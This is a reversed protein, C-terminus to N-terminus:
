LVLGEGKKKTALCQQYEKLELEFDELVYNIVTNKLEGSGQYHDKMAHVYTELRFYRGKHKFLLRKGSKCNDGGGIDGIGESVCDKLDDMGYKKRIANFVDNSFYQTDLKKFLRIQYPFDHKSRATVEGLGDGLYIPGNLNYGKFGEKVTGFWSGRSFGVYHSTGDWNNGQDWNNNVNGPLRKVLNFERRFDDFSATPNLYLGKTEENIFNVIKEPPNVFESEKWWSIKCEESLASQSFALLLLGLSFKKCMGLM